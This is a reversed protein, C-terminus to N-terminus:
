ASSMSSQRGSFGYKSEGEFHKRWKESPFREEMMELEKRFADELDVNFRNALQLFLTFAQAFERSVDEGGPIEHGLGPVKYKERVLIHRGIESIEEILHTFIQSERFRSWCREEEFGLIRQQAERIRM